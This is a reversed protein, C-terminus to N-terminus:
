KMLWTNLYQGPTKVVLKCFSFTDAPTFRFKGARASAMGAKRYHDQGGTKFHNTTSYLVEISDLAPNLVHWELVIESGTAAARLRSLDAPGIFPVGDLEMRLSEPVPLNLHRCLSPFIDVMAPTQQFHANLNRSNTVIWTARERPSQGGHDKGTVSDRGHDTTVVLLWDENFKKERERIAQWIMGVQRDAQKVADIFEPSDGFQHGVDDTFELYVWTLDPGHQVVAEAAAAAVAEDIRFIYQRDNGHPFRVTDYELGDVKLDLRIAGAQPLGEGILKTRNDLWTSFIATTMSSDTQEALRFINHYHYNPDAIDNDWVNHKNAWTGTIMSNYGVASITPSQSYGNVLGGVYARAYGGARAIEDLAPLDLKEIVDPPIGDVLVFLVKPKPPQEKKPACASAIVLTIALFIGTQKNM